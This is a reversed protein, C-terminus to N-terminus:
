TVVLHTGSAVESNPPEVERRVRPIRSVDQYCAEYYYYDRSHANAIFQVIVEPDNGDFDIGSLFRKAVSCFQDDPWAHFSNISM